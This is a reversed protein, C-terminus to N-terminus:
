RRRKSPMVQLQWESPYRGSEVWRRVLRRDDDTPRFPYWALEGAEQEAWDECGDPGVDVIVFRLGSADSRSYCFRVTRERSDRSDLFCDQDVLTHAM